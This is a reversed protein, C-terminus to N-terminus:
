PGYPKLIWLEENILSKQERIIVRCSFGLFFAQIISFKTNTFEMVQLLWTSAMKKESFKQSVEM